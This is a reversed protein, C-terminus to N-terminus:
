RSWPRDARGSFASRTRATPDRASGAPWGEMSRLRFPRSPWVQSRRLTFSSIWRGPSRLTLVQDSVEAPGPHQMAFAVPVSVRRGYHEVASTLIWQEFSGRRLKAAHCWAPLPGTGKLGSCVSRGASSSIVRTMGPIRTIGAHRPLAAPVQGGGPTRLAVTAGAAGGGIALSFVALLFWRRRRHRKAEAILPDLGFPLVGM